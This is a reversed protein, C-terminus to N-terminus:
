ETEPIIFLVAIFKISYTNQQYASAVKPYIGRLLIAPDQPLVVGLKRLWQWVSEWLVQVVKYRWWCCILTKRAGCGQWCTSDRSDKIKARRIPTLYFVPSNQNANRQHSLVKFM